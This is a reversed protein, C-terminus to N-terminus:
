PSPSEAKQFPLQPQMAVSTRARVQAEQLLSWDQRFRAISERSHLPSRLTADVHALLLQFALRSDSGPALIDDASIGVRASGGPDDVKIWLSGDTEFYPTGEEDLTKFFRGTSVRSPIIEERVAEDVIADFEQRYRAWEEPTGVFEIRDASQESQLQDVLVRDDDAKAEKLDYTLQTFGATPHAEYEHEPNFRGTLVYSAAAVPLEHSAFLVMPVLLKKSRYLQETGDRTVSSRKITGPIQAFHLVRYQADPHRRAYRAFSRAVAKPSTIGFDNIYDPRAAGPFYTNVISRTFNACNRTFANFHNKNPLDNFKAILELDQQLTTKVVFIYISRSSTAAVMERWEAKKSITCPPGDCYGVLVKRRYDEELLGKIKESAFLPRGQPGAAGYLYTNLPTINWEFPESEGLTTYNSIVSGEEGPECLRMKVPSAPCIRSLYVASHGAGTIRAVSTDLSENLVVGVDAHARPSLVLALFIALSLLPPRHLLLWGRSNKEAMFNFVVLPNGDMREFIRHFCLTM